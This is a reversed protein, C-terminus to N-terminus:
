QSLEPLWPDGATLRTLADFLNIAHKAATALYSRIACFQQAGVLTRMCGSVKQRLKVMRIEREAANNDFPFRHPDRAFRLYDEQRDLMRRALAHLKKGVKTSQRSHDSVGVLAAHRYRNIQEDLIQPDIGAVGHAIATDASDKLALLADIGQQAWVAAHEDIETAAVLERVLHACCLSHTAATYCDYPAWADHVAIGIYGPLVGGADIGDKGRKPHVYILSYKGTSASHVWHLKGEVRFGTEDFHVRESAALGNRIFALVDGQVRKAARGTLTAVSGQSIPVGFLDTVTQAVRKQAGFQVVLLYVVIAALRPGYQVPADVNAPATGTTHQGCGCRRIVLRHETVQATMPPIEFVQRRTLGMEAAGALDDGCASCAVPEHRVVLDPNDVQRLTAGAHGRQGGPKRGSRKRLSKPAPKALGESSPPRHSNRPTQGLRARLEENEARLAAIMANREVLVAELVALRERLLEVTSSLDPV